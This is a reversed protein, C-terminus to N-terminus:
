ISSEIDRAILGDLNVAKSGKMLSKGTDKSVILADNNGNNGILKQSRRKSIRKPKVKVNGFSEQIERFLDDEKVDIKSAYGCMQWQYGGLKYAINVHRFVVKKIM